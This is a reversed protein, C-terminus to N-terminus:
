SWRGKRQAALAQACASQAVCRAYDGGPCKRYYWAKGEAATAALLMLLCIFLSARLPAM